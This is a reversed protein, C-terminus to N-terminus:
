VVKNHAELRRNPRWQCYGVVAGLVGVGLLIYLWPLGSEEAASQSAAEADSIEKDATYLEREIDLLVDTEWSIAQSTKDKLRTLSEQLARTHSLLQSQSSEIAELRAELPSLGSRM